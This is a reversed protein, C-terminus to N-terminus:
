RRRCRRASSRAQAAAARGRRRRRRVPAPAARFDAGAHLDARVARAHEIASPSSSASRARAPAAAAAAIAASACRRFRPSARSEARCRHLAEARRVDEHMAVIQVANQDVRDALQLRVRDLEAHAARRHRLGGVRRGRLERAAFLHAGAGDDGGVADVRLDAFAQEAGALRFEGAADGPAAEDGISRRGGCRACSRVM